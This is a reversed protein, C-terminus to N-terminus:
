SNTHRYMSLIKLDFLKLYDFAKLLPSIAIVSSISGNRFFLRTMLTPQRM